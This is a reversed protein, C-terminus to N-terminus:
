SDAHNMYPFPSPRRRRRAVEAMGSLLGPNPVAGFADEVETVMDDPLGAGALAEFWNAETFDLFTSRNALEHLGNALMTDEFATSQEALSDAIVGDFDFMILKEHSM